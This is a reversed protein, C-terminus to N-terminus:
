YQKVQTDRLEQWRAEVRGSRFWERSLSLGGRANAGIAWRHDPGNM